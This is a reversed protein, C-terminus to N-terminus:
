RNFPPPCQTLMSRYIVMLRVGYTFMQIVLNQSVVVRM